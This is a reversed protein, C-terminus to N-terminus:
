VSPNCFECLMSRILLCAYQLVAGRGSWQGLHRSGALHAVEVRGRGELSGVESRGRGVERTEDIETRIETIESTSGPIEGRRTEDILMIEDIFM